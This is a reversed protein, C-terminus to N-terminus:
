PNLKWRTLTASDLSTWTETIFGAPFQNDSAGETRKLLFWVKELHGRAVRISKGEDQPAHMEALVALSFLGIKKYSPYISGRDGIWTAVVEDRFMKPSTVGAEWVSQLHAFRIALEHDIERLAVRNAESKAMREEHKAYAFSIGALIVSSFLWLAFPANLFAWLPSRRNRGELEARITARLEEEARIQQMREPTLM